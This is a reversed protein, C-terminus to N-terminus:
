RREQEQERKEVIERAFPPVYRLPEAEREIREVTERDSTIDHTPPPTLDDGGRQKRPDDREGEVSVVYRGGGVLEEGVWQQVDFTWSEGPPLPAEPRVAVLAAVREFPELVVGRVVVRKGPVAEHVVPEFAPLRTAPGCPKAPRGLLRRVLNLLLCWLHRLLRLLAGFPGRPAADAPAATPGADAPRAPRTASVGSLSSALPAQTRLATLRLRVGLAPPLRTLD